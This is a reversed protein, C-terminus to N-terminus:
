VAKSRQFSYLDMELRADGVCLAALVDERRAPECRESSPFWSYSTMVTHNAEPFVTWGTTSRRTEQCGAGDADVWGELSREHKGRLTLGVIRTSSLYAVVGLAMQWLHFDTM